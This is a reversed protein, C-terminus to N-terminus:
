IVVPPRAVPPIKARELGDSFTTNYTNDCIFGDGAPFRRKISADCVTVFLVLGPNIQLTANYPFISRHPLPGELCGRVQHKICRLGRLLVQGLIFRWRSNLSAPVHLLGSAAICITADCQWPIDFSVYQISEMM